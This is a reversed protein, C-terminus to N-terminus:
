NPSEKFHLIFSAYQYAATLFILEAYLKDLLLDNPTASKQLQEILNKYNKIQKASSAYSLIEPTLNDVDKKFDLCYFTTKSILNFVFEDKDINLDLSM